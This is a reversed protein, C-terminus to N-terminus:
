PKSIKKANHKMDEFCFMPKKFRNRPVKESKKLLFALYGSMCNVHSYNTRAFSTLIKSSHKSVGETISKGEMRVSFLMIKGNEMREFIKSLRFLQCRFYLASFIRIASPAIQVPCGARAIPPALQASVILEVEEERGRRSFATRLPRKGSV